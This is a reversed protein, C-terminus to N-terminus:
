KNIENKKFLSLFICSLAFSFITNISALSLGFLRFTVEKCSITNEKLQKLIDQKTPNDNLNIADCVAAESLFGQEIGFHYFALLSGFLSIISLLLLHIKINKKFIYISGILLISLFYPYRQFICLKCPKYGLGFEIVYAFILSLILLSLIYFLVTNTKINM